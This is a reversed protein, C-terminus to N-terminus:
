NGLFIALSNNGIPLNGDLAQRLALVDGAKVADRIIARNISCEEEMAAAPFAMVLFLSILLLKKM